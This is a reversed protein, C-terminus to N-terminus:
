NVAGKVWVIGSKNGDVVAVGVEILQERLGYLVVRIEM